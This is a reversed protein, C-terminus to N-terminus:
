HQELSLGLIGFIWPALRRLFAAAPKGETVPENPLTTSSNIEPVQLEGRVVRNNSARLDRERNGFM